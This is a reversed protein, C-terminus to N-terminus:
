WRRLNSRRHNRPVRLDIRPPVAKPGAHRVSRRPLCEAWPMRRANIGLLSALTVRPGGAGCPDPISGPQFPLGYFALPVHTDYSYPSAHDTGTPRGSAFPAPVGLVYWGGAPSYSHLYELGIDTNPYRGPGVPQAHFLRAPRGAEHSRGRRARCGRGQDRVASLCGPEAMRSPLRLSKIYETTKGASRNQTLMENVQARMKDGSGGDGPYATKGCCCSPRSEM